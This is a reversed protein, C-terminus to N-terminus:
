FTWGARVGAGLERYKEGVRAPGGYVFRVEPVVILRPAAAIPLSLGMLLGGRTRDRSTDAFDRAVRAPDVGEPITLVTFDSTERYRRASLGGHVALSVRDNVVLRVAAGFSGGIGPDYGLERRAVPAWREFEAPSMTPAPPYSIFTGEYTRAIRGGAATLDGFVGLSPSLWWVAQVGTVPTTGGADAELFVRDARFVPGVEFAGSTQAMAPSAACTAFVSLAIAATATSRMLAEM